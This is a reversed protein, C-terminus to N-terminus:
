GDVGPLEEMVAQSERAAAPTAIVFVIVTQIVTQTADPLRMADVGM